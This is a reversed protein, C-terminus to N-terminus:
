HPVFGCVTDRVQPPLEPSRPTQLCFHKLTQVWLPHDNLCPALRFREGGAEMFVERARIGIEELTELCDATFSPCLVVLDKVGEAAITRITSEAEPELWKDPGFRSQFAMSFQGQQLGLARAATITTFLTQHRYCTSHSPSEGMCCEMNEVECSADMPGTKYLHREPVGHYSFLVHQCGGEFAPLAAAILADIYLPHRYFPPQVTLSVQKECNKNLKELEGVAKVVVTEFTAMAYQPYLPVLFVEEVDRNELLAELGERISPRGYRMGFEVPMDLAEKLKDTLNRTHVMLPSGEDTWVERYAEASKAPRRPLVFASVVFRRLAWPIDLVREDMLFEDLYRRLAPATPEDPSGLNVLLVGRGSPSQGGNSEINVAETEM